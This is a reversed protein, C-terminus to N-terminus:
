FLTAHMLSKAFKKRFKLPLLNKSKYMAGIRKAIKNKIYDVHHYFKLQHDLILSLYKKTRVKELKILLNASSQINVDFTDVSWEQNM